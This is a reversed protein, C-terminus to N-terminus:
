TGTLAFPLWGAVALRLEVRGEEESELPPPPLLVLRVGRLRLEVVVQFGLRAELRVRIEGRSGTQQVGDDNM